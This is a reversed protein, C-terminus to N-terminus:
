LVKEYIIHPSEPPLHPASAVHFAPLPPTARFIHGLPCPVQGKIDHSGYTKTMRELHQVFFVIAIDQVDQWSPHLTEVNHTKLKLM